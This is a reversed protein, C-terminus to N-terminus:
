KAKKDKTQSIKNKILYQTAEEMERPIPNDANLNMM